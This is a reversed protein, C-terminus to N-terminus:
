QFQITIPAFRFVKMSPFTTFDQLCISCVQIIQCVKIIFKVFLDMRFRALIQADTMPIESLSIVLMNM